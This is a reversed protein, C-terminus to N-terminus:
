SRDSSRAAPSLSSAKRLEPLIDDRILAPLIVVRVFLEPSKGEPGLAQFLQYYKPAGKTSARPNERDPRFQGALQSYDPYDEPFPDGRRRSGDTSLLVRNQSDCIAIELLSGSITMIKTLRGALDADGVLADEIPLAPQRELSRSVTDAALSKMMDARRLTFQFQREIEARLYYASITGTLLAVLCVSILTLRARRTM